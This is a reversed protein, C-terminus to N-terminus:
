GHSNWSDRLEFYHSYNIIYRTQKPTESSIRELIYTLAASGKVVDYLPSGRWPTNIRTRPGRFLTRAFLSDFRLADDLVLLTLPLM